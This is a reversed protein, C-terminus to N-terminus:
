RCPRPRGARESSKRWPILSLALLPYLLMVPPFGFGLPGTGFALLGGFVFFVAFWEGRRHVALNALLLVLAAAVLAAYLM